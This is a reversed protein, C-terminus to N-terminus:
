HWIFRRPVFRARRLRSADRWRWRRSDRKERNLIIVAYRCRDLPISEWVNVAQPRLNFLVGVVRLEHKGDPSNPVFKGVRFLYGSRGVRGAGFGSYM